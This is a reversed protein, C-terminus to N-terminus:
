KQSSPNELVDQPTTFGIFSELTQHIELLQSLQQNGRSCLAQCIKAETYPVILGHAPLEQEIRLVTLKYLHLVQRAQKLLELARLSLM